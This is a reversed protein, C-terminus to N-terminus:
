ELEAEITELVLNMIAVLADDLSSNDVVPVGERRAHDIIYGQLRRIRGFAGLYREVARRQSDGRALFHSRHLDEDDIAVVVQVVVADLQALGEIAGPVCHVGEIVLSTREITAREILANIGVSVQEVQREFGAILPDPTTTNIHVGHDADFSSHHVAPMFQNSFFARLVQRVMDTATVRTVGLRHALMTALTSKGVGTAGCIMLILPRHLHDLRRWQRFHRVAVDGEEIGLVEEALQSLEGSAIDTDGRDLLKREIVTALEYSRDPPIGSSMLSTAMLGKSFPFRRDEKVVLVSTSGEDAALEAATEQTRQEPSLNSESM